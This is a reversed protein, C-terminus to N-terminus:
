IHILSLWIVLTSGIAMIEWFIFTTVLDGTLVVGVASGAYLFAAPIELRSQQRLAFLGGAFVMLIFITAFLRALKDVVLPALQYDLWVITWLRGEPLLWLLVMAVVPALLVLVSRASGRLLPLLLAAAFLVVSPHLIFASNM